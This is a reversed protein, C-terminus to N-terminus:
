ELEEAVELEEVQDKVVMKKILLDYVVLAVIVVILTQLMEKWM